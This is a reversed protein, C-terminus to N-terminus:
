SSSFCANFDALLYYAFTLFQRLETNIQSVSSKDCRPAGLKVSNCLSVNSLHIRFEVGLPDM